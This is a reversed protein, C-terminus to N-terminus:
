RNLLMEGAFGVYVHSESDGLPSRVTFWGGLIDSVKKGPSVQCLFATFFFCFSLYHCKLCPSNFYLENAKM